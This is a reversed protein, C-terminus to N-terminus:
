EDLPWQVTYGHEHAVRTLVERLQPKCEPLAWLGEVFEARLAELSPSEGSALDNHLHEKLRALRRASYEQMWDQPWLRLITETMLRDMTTIARGQHTRRAQLCWGARFEVRPVGGNNSILTFEFADSLLAKLQADDLFLRGPTEDPARRGATHTNLSDLWDEVHLAAAISVLAALSFLLSRKLAQVKKAKAQPRAAAGGAQPGSTPSWSERARLTRARLLNRRTEM